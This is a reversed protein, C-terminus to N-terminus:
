RSMRVFCGTGAWREGRTSLVEVPIAPRRPTGGRKGPPRRRTSSCGCWDRSMRTFRVLEPNRHTTPTGMSGKMEPTYWDFRRTLTLRAVGNPDWRTFQPRNWYASWTGDRASGVEQGVEVNGMPGGTGRPGYSGLLQSEAGTFSFRHLTSNPPNSNEFYGGAMLLDPWAIVVPDNLGRHSRISRVTRLDPGLITARSELWDFVVMSDGAVIGNNASRFEGPGSGKRGVMREVVGSASYVTPPELEQFVWYRGHSDVNVSMPKGNLSGLGDDTGLTVLTRATISCRPCSPEDPVVRSPPAQAGVSQVVLLCAVLM